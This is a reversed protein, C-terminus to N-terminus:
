AMAIGAIQAGIEAVKLVSEVGMAVDAKNSAKLREAAAMAVAERQDKLSATLRSADSSAKAAAQRSAEGIEQATGKMAGAVLPNGGGFALSARQLAVDLAGQAQQSSELSKQDMAGKERDSVTNGQAAKLFMDKVKERHMAGVRKPKGSKRMYPSDQSPPTAPGQTTTSLM